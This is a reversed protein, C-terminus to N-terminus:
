QLMQEDTPNLVIEDYLAINRMSYIQSSTFGLEELEETKYQRVICYEDNQKLIKVLMKNYYGNRNRVVYSLGNEEKIAENPIRFGEADWWIIDFSIKRYAILKEVDNTIKVTITKSEDDEDIINEVSAKLTDSNQVRIKITDGVKSNKAENTNSNFVIYCQYNNIIKGVEENSAVTQGTKLKLDQLFSKNFKTFNETTLVSELGDVRYSVIGSEPANVNESDSTLRNEYEERQSLLEKLRSNSPSSIKAKKTIYSNINKKYEQIKQANNVGYISDLEKEIQSELLKVDSPFSSKENQMLSQIEVDLEAIKNKLEEEGSSYYRFVSDGKAVKEGENKIKVMGNKYNQGKVVTEERIIYGIDSEEQSIKGNTVMFTNTPNQVLKAVLYVAYIFVLALILVVAFVRGKRIKKEM